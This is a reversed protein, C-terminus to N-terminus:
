GLGQFSKRDETIGRETERESMKRNGQRENMGIRLREKGKDTLKHLGWTMVTLNASCGCYLACLCDRERVCVCVYKSM